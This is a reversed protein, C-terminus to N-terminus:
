EPSGLLYLTDLVITELWHRGLRSPSQILTLEKFSRITRLDGKKSLEQRHSTDMQFVSTSREGTCLSQSFCSQAWCSTLLKKGVYSILVKLVVKM